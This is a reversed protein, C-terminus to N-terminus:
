STTGSLNPSEPDLPSRQKIMLYRPIIYELGLTNYELGLQIPQNHIIIHATLRLLLLCQFAIPDMQTPQVKSGM